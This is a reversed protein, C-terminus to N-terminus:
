GVIPQGITVPVSIRDKIEQYIPIDIGEGVEISVLLAYPINDTFSNADKSCNVKINISDGDIFASANSDEFVEHQLTGRRVAQWDADMRSNAIQNKAEFWLRSTRYRQTAPSTPSFWALTITLRRKITQSALSPPLPLSYVHAEEESLEGFGIVTARQETCEKVRDIDPFGYGLLKSKIKQLIQHDYDDLRRDIEISIDGWSSGHILMAKILIAMMSSPISVDNDHILEELVQYCYYGSRTILATANSTGIEHITKNLTNDPAAVKLGPPLKYSSPRLISTDGYHYDFMQRGGYYVLDPKIARRYGSGLATYTSPLTTTYPNLRRENPLFTANDAHLAGVTLNNISEAPSMIRCNRANNLIEHLFIKEKEIAELVDFEAQTISLRIENYHNGTSIVFLVRYKYSLWDLLKSWPSMSNYFLRDRDGISLNIIKVSPAVADFDGEGEFIRRVARHVTDILLRDNPVFESRNFDNPRMIPRVYLPTPLPEENANLDGRVILSCMATGHKREEVQYYAEMNDPDDIILRDNLVNHRTLPYGDFIAVVPNGTPLLNNNIGEINQLEEQSFNNEMVIQGSPKFYMINDCKILETNRNSLIGRIENAPLEALIAHYRIEPIDCVTLVQGEAESILNSVSRFSNNRQTPNSRYWLEIEFRITRNPNIQLEEEWLSLINSEEFRDQVGWRRINKLLKFVEKFKGKGRYEGSRCNFDPTRVWLNWLSLLESMAATNTFVLYLRGNMLKDEEKQGFKDVSYFENDPVIDEIEIEGLWEFGEIKSVAAAFDEVSGITEFVLVQEPDIGVISQQVGIRQADLNDFLRQFTPSLRQEQRTSSPTFYKGGGGGLKSRTAVEKNPFFLLPKQAM